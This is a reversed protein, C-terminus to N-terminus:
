DTACFTHAPGDEGDEFMFAPNIWLNCYRCIM